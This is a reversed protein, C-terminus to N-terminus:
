EGASLTLRTRPTYPASLLVASAAVHIVLPRGRAFVIGIQNQFQPSEAYRRWRHFCHDDVAMFPLQLYSFLTKEM